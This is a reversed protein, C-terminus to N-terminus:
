MARLLVKTSTDLVFLLCKWISLIHRSGITFSIEGGGWCHGAVVLVIGVAYLFKFRYDVNGYTAIGKELEQM